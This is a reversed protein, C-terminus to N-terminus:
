VLICISCVYLFHLLSYVTQLHRCLIIYKTYLSLSVELIEKENQSLCHCLNLIIHNVKERKFYARGGTVVASFLALTNIQLFVGTSRM